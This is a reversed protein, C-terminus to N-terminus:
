SLGDHTKKPHSVQRFSVNANLKEKDQLKLSNSCTMNESTFNTLIFLEEAGSTVITQEMIITEDIENDAICQIKKDVFLIGQPYTLSLTFTSTITKDKSLSGEISFKGSEEFKGVKEIDFIPSLSADVTCNKILGAAIAYETLKPNILTNDDTPISYRLFNSAHFFRLIVSTKWFKVTLRVYM